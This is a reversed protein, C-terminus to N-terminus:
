RDFNLFEQRSEDVCRYLYKSNKAIEARLRDSNYIAPKKVWRKFETWLRKRSPYAISAVLSAQIAAVSLTVGTEMLLQQIVRVLNDARAHTERFRYFVSEAWKLDYMTRTKM